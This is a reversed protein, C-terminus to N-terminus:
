ERTKQEQLREEKGEEKPSIKLTHSWMMVEEADGGVEGRKEAFSKGDTNKNWTHV